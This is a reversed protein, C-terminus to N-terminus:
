SAMTICSEQLIVLLAPSGPKFIYHLAVQVVLVVVTIRDLIVMPVVAGQDEMRVLVM